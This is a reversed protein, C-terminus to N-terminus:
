EADTSISVTDGPDLKTGAAPAQDVVTGEASGDPSLGAAEIAAGADAASMGVVNPVTVADASTSGEDETSISVTDGPDLKVGAEPAQDVVIGATEGDPSLGAAEIAAAADAASMGVVNPVVYMDDSSAAAAASSAETANSAKKTGKVLVAIDDEPIGFDQWNDGQGLVLISFSYKGDDWVAKSVKGKENGYCRVDTGDMNVSWENAYTAESFDRGAGTTKAAQTNDGNGVGKRIVVEAAAVGADAEAMKESSYYNWETVEGLSLKTGAKPVIFEEVGAAKAAEDATKAQTWKVTTVAQVSASSSSASAESASSSSASSSAASSSAQSGCGALALALVAAAVIVALKKM